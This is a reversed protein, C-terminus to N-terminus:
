VVPTRKDVPVYYYIHYKWRLYLIGTILTGIGNPIADKFGYGYWTVITAFLFCLYVAMLGHGITRRMRRIKGYFLLAGSAFFIFGLGLLTVRSQYLWGVRSGDDLPHAFMTAVGAYMMFIALLYKFVSIAGSFLRLMYM